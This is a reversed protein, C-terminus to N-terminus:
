CLNFTGMDVFYVQGWQMSGMANSATIPQRVSIKRAEQYEVSNYFGKAKELSPFEIIVVRRTEEPGELTIVEGGRAIYKGGYKEIIAPAVKQYERYKDWNTVDTRVVLYAAM